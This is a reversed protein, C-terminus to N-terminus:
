VCAHRLPAAPAPQHLKSHRSPRQQRAPQLLAPLASAPSHLRRRHSTAPSATPHHGSRQRERPADFPASPAHHRRRSNRPTVHALTAHTHHHPRPRPAPTGRRAALPALLPAAPLVPNSSVLGGVWTHTDIYTTRTRPHPGPAVRRAAPPFGILAGCAAWPQVFLSERVITHHDLTSPTHETVGSHTAQQVTTTTACLGPCM